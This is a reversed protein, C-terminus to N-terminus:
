RGLGRSIVFALYALYVLLFLAGHWKEIVGKRGLAV